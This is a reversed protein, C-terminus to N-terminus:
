SGNKGTYLDELLLTDETDVIRNGMYQFGGDTIRVTTEHTFAKDTEKQPWVADVTLTLTGDTNEVARTVEPFPVIGPIREMQDPEKWIYHGEEHPVLKKIQEQSVPLYNQILNEVDQDSLRNWLLSDPRYGYEMEYLVPLLDAFQIQDLNQRDWDILFLNRCHYGVPAIMERCYARLEDSLPLIRIADCGDPGDYGDPQDKQFLLYGKETYAFSKATYKEIASVWQGGTEKWATATRTVTLQNM